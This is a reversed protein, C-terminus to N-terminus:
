LRSCNASTYDWGAVTPCSRDAHIRWPLQLLDDLRQETDVFDLPDARVRPEATNPRHVAFQLDRSAGFSLGDRHPPTPLDQVPAGTTNDGDEQIYSRPPYENANEVGLWGPGPATGSQAFFFHNSAPDYWTEDTGAPLPVTWFTSNSDNIILSNASGAGCGLAILGDTNTGNLSPGISLGAPGLGKGTVGCGTTAPVIEYAAVVKAHQAYTSPVSTPTSQVLLSIKLVFGDGNTPSVTVTAVTIKFGSGTGGLNSASASLTDGVTYGLGPNVIKVATVPGTNATAANVTVSFGSGVGGDFANSASLVDNATYGSGPNAL